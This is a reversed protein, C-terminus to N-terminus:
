RLSKVLVEFAEYVGETTIGEAGRSLAFGSGALANQLMSAFPRVRHGAILGQKSLYNLGSLLNRNGLEYDRAHWEATGMVSPGDILVINQYDKRAIWNLYERAGAMFASYPDDKSMAVVAVKRVATDLRRQLITWVEIFLAKKNTFHYFLAGKSNGSRACIDEVSAGAYGKTEFLYAADALLRERTKEADIKSRKAM